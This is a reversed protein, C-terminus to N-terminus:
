SSNSSATGGVRSAHAKESSTIGCVHPRTALDREVLGDTEHRLLVSNM